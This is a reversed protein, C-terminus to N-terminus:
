NSDTKIIDFIGEIKRIGYAGLHNSDSYYAGESDGFFCSTLNCLKSSPDIFRQGLRSKFQSILTGYQSDFISRGAILYKKTSDYDLGQFKIKRSLVSAIEFNPIMIPGILFVKKGRMELASILDFIAEKLRTMDFSLIASSSDVLKHGYWTLGIVVTSINKDNLVADLNGKALSLCSSSINLKVTPLCGSLYVLLGKENREKLIPELAPVYMQAHSNGLLAISYNKEAKSNILCARSAGYSRYDFFNCQYNTQISSAIKSSFSEVNTFLNFHLIIFALGLLFVTAFITFKIVIRPKNSHRFPQEIHKFSLASLVYTLILVILLHSNKNQDISIYSLFAILPWHWLYTSFSIHGLYRILRSEFFYNLILTPRYKMSLFLATGIVVLFGKSIFKPLITLGLAILALSFILSVFNHQRGFKFYTLAAISGFGFEWARFPVLFFAPDPTNKKIMYLNCLFSVSTLLCIGVMHSKFSKLKKLVAILLVPFFLYYQEEVSLSWIHLLPKLSDPQGFYGGDLWFFINSTFTLSSIISKVFSIYDAGILIFTALLFTIFIVFLTVPLIRKIRRQYFIVLSFKGALFEEYIYLTILFGSIVFFVDVGLYGYNFVGPWIHYLVVTTVAIARVVDIEQRYNM